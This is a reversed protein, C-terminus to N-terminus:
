QQRQTRPRDRTGLSERPEGPSRALLTELRLAVELEAQRASLPYGLRAEIDILRKRLTSRHVKLGGAAASVQHGCKFYARLTERASVGRDKFMDLPALHIELFSLALAEDHLLFEVLAVDAYRTRPQPDRLAVRLAAQAQRHALRWGEFGRAPESLALQVDAAWSGRAANEVKAPATRHPGGLWAWVLESTRPVALLQRGLETALRSLSREAKAGLAIVCIHWADEFDYDLDSTDFAAGVLLSQVREARRQEPSRTSRLAEREYEGTIEGTLRNFHAHLGVVLHLSTPQGIAPSSAIERIMSHALKAEGAHFRRLVADLPVGQRAARQVQAVLAPPAPDSFSEGHAIADLVYDVGAVVAVHRGQDFDVFEDSRDPVADRIHTQIAEDLEPRKARLSSVLAARQDGFSEGRRAHANM